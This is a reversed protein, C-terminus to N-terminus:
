CGERHHSPSPRRCGGKPACSVLVVESVSLFRSRELVEEGRQSRSLASGGTIPASVSPLQSPGPGWRREGSVGEEGPGDQQDPGGRVSPDQM